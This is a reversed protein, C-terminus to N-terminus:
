SANSVTLRGDSVQVSATAEFWRKSSSPTGTLVTTNEVKLKYVSDFYKPDGAVLHVSYTGNPVAIEWKLAAGNAQMQNLTDYRLDASLRSNRQRANSQNAASWGFTLGGGRAGYVSGIDAVYGPYTGTTAPSEFNIHFSLGGNSFLIRPEITEVFLGASRSCEEERKCM